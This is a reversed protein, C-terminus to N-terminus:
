NIKDVIDTIFLTLEKTLDKEIFINEKKIKIIPRTPCKNNQKIVMGVEGQNTRVLSGIPYAAVSEIFIRVVDLDFKKESESMIFEIAKHVKKNNEFVLMDFEDCVSIIRCATSIKEDKLHFPYGSGDLREHHYLIIKKANDSLWKENEVLSYGYIVHKKKEKEMDPNVDVSLNNDLVANVCQLGIDHLLSGVAIDKIDKQSLNMKIAFIVSMTCVNVSHSYIKDNNKRISNINILIEPEKLIEGIIEEAINKIQILEESSTSFYKDLTEGVKKTCEEMIEIKIEDEVIEDNEIYVINEGIEVLKEIYEKKIVTGTPILIVGSQNIIDRALVEGGELDLTAVIKM